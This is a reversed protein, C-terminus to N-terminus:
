FALLLVPAVAGTALLAFALRRSRSQTLGMWLGLVTSLVLGIAVALFVWKIPPVAEEAEPPRAAAPPAPTAPGAKPPGPRKKPSVAFRQHIHVESLKEVIAPPTYGSDRHAEHLTFLQLGGTAAYFLVSPAILVGVYLHLQRLLRSLNM